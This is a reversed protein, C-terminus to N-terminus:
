WKSSAALKNKAVDRLMGGAVTSFEHSSPRAQQRAGIVGIKRLKFKKLRLGAHRAKKLKPADAYSQGHRIMTETSKVHQAIWSWEGRRCIHGLM